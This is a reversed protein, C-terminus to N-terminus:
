IISDYKIIRVIDKVIRFRNSSKVFLCFYVFTFIKLKFKIKKDQKKVAKLISDM